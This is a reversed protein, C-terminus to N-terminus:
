GPYMEEFEMMGLWYGYFVGFIFLGIIAAELLIIYWKQKKGVLYFLSTFIIPYFCGAIIMAPLEGFSVFQLLGMIFGVACYLAAMIIFGMFPAAPLSTQHFFMGIGSLTLLVGLCLGALTRRLDSQFFNKVTGAYCIDSAGGKGRGEM